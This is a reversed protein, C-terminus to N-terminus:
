KCSICQKIASKECIVFLGLTVASSNRHVLRDGDVRLLLEESPRILWWPLFCASVLLGTTLLSLAFSILKARQHRGAVCLTATGDPSWRSQHAHAVTNSGTPAASSPSNRPSRTCLPGCPPHEAVSRSRRDATSNDMVPRTLVASSSSPQAISPVVSPQRSDMVAVLQRPQEGSEVDM